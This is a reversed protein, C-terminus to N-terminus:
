EFGMEQDMVQQFRSPEFDPFPVVYSDFAEIAEPLNEVTAAKLHGLGGLSTALDEQHNDLLTPNPVVILHKHRRLVDLITGSGAHSIILDAREYEPELSPKFKWIEIDLGSKQLRTVSDATTGGSVDVPSNGSQVVLSTFGKSRLANLVPESLTSNILADFKTSGVTVFALM